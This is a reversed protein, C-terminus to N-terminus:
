GERRTGSWEGVVRGIERRASSVITELDAETISPDFERMEALEPGLAEMARDVIAMPRVPSGESGADRIAELAAHRSTMEVTKLVGPRELM